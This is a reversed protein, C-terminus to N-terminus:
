DRGDFVHYPSMTNQPGPYEVCKYYINSKTRPSKKKLQYAKM